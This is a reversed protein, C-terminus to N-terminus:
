IRRKGAPMPIPNPTHHPKTPDAQLGTEHRFRIPTALHGTGFNVLPGLPDGLPFRLLFWDFGFRVAM